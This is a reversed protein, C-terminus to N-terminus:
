SPARGLALLVGEDWADEMRRRLRATHTFGIAGRRIRKLLRLPWPQPRYYGRDLMVRTVTCASTRILKEM